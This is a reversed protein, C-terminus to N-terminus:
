IECLFYFSNAMSFFFISINGTGIIQILSKPFILDASVRLEKIYLNFVLGTKNKPQVNKGKLTNQQGESACKKKRKVRQHM